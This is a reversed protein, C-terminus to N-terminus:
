EPLAAIIVESNFIGGSGSGGVGSWAGSEPDFVVGSYTNNATQVTYTIVSGDAPYKLSVDGGLKGAISVLEMYDHTNTANPTVYKIPM